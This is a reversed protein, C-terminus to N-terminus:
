APDQGPQSFIGENDELLGLRELELWCSPCVAMFTGPVRRKEGQHECMVLKLPQSYIVQIGQINEWARTDSDEGLASSVYQAAIRTIDDM